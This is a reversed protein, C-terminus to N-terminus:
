ATRAAPWPRWVTGYERWWILGLSFLLVGGHVSLIAAGFGM